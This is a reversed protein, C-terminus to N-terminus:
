KRRPYLGRAEIEHIVAPPALGDVPEGLALRRRVESSSVEEDAREITVLEALRLVGGPDKWTHLSDAVDQGVILFLLASPNEERLQTLTDITYTSGERDLEIRSARHGSRGKVCAEVLALRDDASAVVGGSKQWPERAVVWLVLDLDERAQAQEAAKVHGLHPPDFTGGLVGIRRGSSSTAAVIRSASSPRM